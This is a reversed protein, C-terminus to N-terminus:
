FLWFDCPALDPSYPPHELPTGDIETLADMAVEWYRLASAGSLDSRRGLFLEKSVVTVGNELLPHFTTLLASSTLPPVEFFISDGCGWLTEVRFLTLGRVKWVARTSRYLHWTPYQGNDSIYLVCSTEPTPEVGSVDEIDIHRVISLAWGLICIIFWDNDCVM